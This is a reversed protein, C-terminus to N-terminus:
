NGIAKLPAFLWCLRPHVKHVGGYLMHMHGEDGADPARSPPERLAGSGGGPGGRPRGAGAQM